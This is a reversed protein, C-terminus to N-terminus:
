KDWISKIKDIVEATKLRLFGLSVDQGFICILLIDENVKSFHISESEGRHFHLSFQEEGVLKAMADVAAFNGAALAAFAAVDFTCHGDDIQAITNGAVDIIITCHVGISLLDGKLIADIDELQEQSVDYM